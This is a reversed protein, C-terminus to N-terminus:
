CCIHIAVAVHAVNLYFVQLMCRFCKSYVRAVYTYLWQFMHLMWIFYKWCVDLVFPINSVYVQLMRSYGNCCICFRSLLCVVDLYVCAVDLYFIPLMLKFCSFYKFCVSLVYTYLWQLMYLMLIFCMCCGSSVYMQFVSFM